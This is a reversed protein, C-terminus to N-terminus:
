MQFSRDLFIEHEKTAVPSRFRSTGGLATTSTAILFLLVPFRFRAIHSDDTRDQISSECKSFGLVAAAAAGVDDHHVNLRVATRLKVM